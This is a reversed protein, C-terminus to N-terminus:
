VGRGKWWARTALVGPGFAIAVFWVLSGSPMPELASACTRVSGGETTTETCESGPSAFVFLWVFAAVIGAPWAVIALLGRLFRNSM